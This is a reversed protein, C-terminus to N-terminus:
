KLASFFNLSIIIDKIQNLECNLSQGWKELHMPIFNIVALIKDEDLLLLQYEKYYRIMKDWYREAIESYYLFVPFARGCIDNQLDYLDPREKFNVVKYNM